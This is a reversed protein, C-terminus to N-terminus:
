PVHVPPLAAELAARQPELWPPLKLGTGLRDLPEDLTFGPPDTAIEFLTGGPEHFYISHFYVRDRVPTVHAGAQELHARAAVEADDGPIRWAVHHVTGVGMAARWFGEAVRVDAIAGGGGAGTEFRHTSGESGVERFGLVTTLFRSTPELSGVWLTVGHVGRIAHEAPVAGGGWGAGARTTAILELAIGDGDRLTIAQEGFRKVPGDFAIGKAVLRELWWGLSSQPISLSLLNIQGTGGRGRAGDGWPFFTVITGPRGAEDGFYLHHTGPDDFNVTRKVLRLGLTGGYFDATAQADGSIATVHHIGSSAITM